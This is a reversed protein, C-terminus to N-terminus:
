SRLGRSVGIARMVAIEGVRENVSVTMLTTILFFGVILSVAGLILALQRFYSLRQEALAVAGMTSIATVRPVARNIELRIREPDVGSAVHVMLLSVRDRPELGTMGQLTALPLAAARQDEPLYRFRVGGSLVLRRRGAYTRLQPDYGVAVDITDGVSVGAERMFADNAVIANPVLADRGSLLTYDGQVTPDIGLAFATVAGSARPVHLAAGLVPSVTAVGPISRVRAAVAGADPISADTDFPVTGKPTVRLEFGGRDLLRRFSERMGSSLMVMDLLMAASVAVGLSALLTRARHGRLSAVALTFRLSM